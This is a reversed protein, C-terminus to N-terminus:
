QSSTVKLGTPANPAVSNPIAVSVENSPGSEGATSTATVIYFYTTNAAVSSDTYTTVNGISVLLAEGQSTTGRYVNYGNVAPAGAPVTSATWSLIVDHTVAAAAPVAKRTVVTPKKVQGYAIAPFLLLLLCLVKALNRV